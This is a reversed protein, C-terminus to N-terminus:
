YAMAFTYIKTFALDITNNYHLHSKSIAKVQKSSFKIFAKKRGQM